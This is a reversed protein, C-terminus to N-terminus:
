MSELANKRFSEVESTLKYGNKELVEVYGALMKLFGSGEGNAVASTYSTKADPVMIKKDYSFLPTNDTGYLTFYVYKKYLQKVEDVKESSGYKKIYSEHSQARTLVGDWSILLEADKAPINNSEEAMIDIYDKIDDSAYSSYKKFFEYNIVPFFYGEATEFKFGKDRMDTLLKRLEEDATSDAKSIDLGAGLEGEINKKVADSNNIMEELKPLYEKQAEELWNIMASVNEPSIFSINEDMFAVIDSIGADNRVLANFEDILDKEKNDIDSTRDGSADKGSNDDTGARSSTQQSPVDTENKKIVSVSSCGIQTTILLVAVIVGVTKRKLMCLVEEIIM